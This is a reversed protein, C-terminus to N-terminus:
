ASTPASGARGEVRATGRELADIVYPRLGAAPIIRDVSGVELARGISHVDDFERAVDGLKESRVSETLAALERRAAQQEDSRGALGEVRRTAAVVRADETTRTRVDRAFVVAAAPAGGIVSAHSGEVAVVELDDNLRKSFVVFAGGHYRSIVVFVIPGDFNTVARGIEAGYELQRSRMSEPSGDFGSLNALVVVPRNGSTWVSPGDRPVLDERTVSRSEFGILCVPFGGVHADWVVATDAHRWRDWRELTPHDQDSVARMVSRIDFPKKREPNRDDSFIDGVTTFDSGEVAAHPAPCVDRDIPDATAARRPFREGPVVFTHAYHRFLIECASALDVAHYQAQGNPGMIREFGGIGLNDEASVGGSFDLAQKGTLVMASEPLMILVGRTHMLMTAESNWYPQAGVNIGTVVVNIEGGAQTFTIIRRLVAGIWDMNETGSTMSIRAGSSVAFWEVPVGLREALDIAAIIRRCEAEALAGLSRSPDGAVLVRRMGEPITPVVNRIVGVVLNATNHGPARDVAVLRGQDDLDHEVFDGHPFDSATGEPPTLLRILEFPYVGGRRQTQLARLGYEDLPEIPQDSPPVQSVVVGRAGPNTVHLAVERSEGDSDPIRVRAIVREIGLGQIAPALKHALDRWTEVPVTSPPRLHLLVVNQLVRREPPRHSQFRRIGSLVEALIRELLPFGVVQGDEGRVPTLDRVEALAFLREDSPNDHAVGHFLYIDEASDLRTIAFRCLRGLDLRKALMPHLNRYLRDEVLGGADSRFCYHYTVSPGPPPSEATITVDIRHMRREFGRAALTRRLQDGVADVEGPEGQQWVHVDLIPRRDPPVDTLHRNVAHVVAPLEDAPTYAVMVHFPKGAHPYDAVALRTGDIRVLAFHALDRIRYYRRAAVELAVDREADGGRQFRDLLVPRLPQPCSVLATMHATREDPDTGAALAGIHRDMEAYVEAQARALVPQEYFRFRVDRALDMIAPYRGDTTAVLHDLLARQDEGAVDLLEDRHSLRRDLIGAVVPLLGDLRQQSRYLRMLGDGVETTPALGEIGHRRLLGLLRDLFAAPLGTSGAEYTRLCTLMYEAPARVREGPVEDAPEPHRRSVACVDAFLSLIEDEERLRRADHVPLPGWPDDGHEIRDVASPDLDYGLLYAQVADFTAGVASESTAIGLDVLADPAPEEDVILPDLQVVPDGADVQVHPAVLVSRIRGPFTACVVTEMKMSELVVLPDGVEVRDGPSAAVSVIVAPTPARVLGGEDRAITHTVGEVEVTHVPGVLTSLVRHRGGAITVRREVDGLREVDVDVLVGAIAVRYSAPGLQYVHLAYPRGRYRFEVRQGVDAPASPRGGAADAYFSSRARTHEVDYAEIAASVLAVDAHRLGLLDGAAMHDDLWGTDYRGAIVDPHELLTLLFAKNTRGGDVIVQTQGLARALRARAEDRDGGWALVKAIMSDFEPAIEDGEAVGTEVRVGPGAPWRFWRIRGPAPAFLNDPDEANLRAEIAHGSSPPPEGGLRDGRAVAIQLKVLDLGTTMETVPHEVQLRANVEMFAYRRSVPSYLFEVTGASTYGAHRCLAAAGRRIEAEQAADLLTCASEEIVKQHRRQLTCDRLGVPWVNGHHDAIVQVEIHRADTIVQEVFVTPDGFAQRAETRATEFAGALEAPGAARRIGRGGGGATAKVLVPYGIRDAIRAAEDPTAVPGGSWPVVPVGAQEALRKSTIKDGVRRMADGSPGIFVIGLKSCLDAFEAQEAVFGWGAWAADARGEVLARELQAHDLYTHAERGIREDFTTAPGLCVAEDAERVFWAHRDPETYLAITSLRDGGSRNLEAVANILRMAPEGRNVIAIRHFPM